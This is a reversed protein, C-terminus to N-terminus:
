LLEIVTLEFTITFMYFGFCILLCVVILFLVGYGIWKSKEIFNIELGIAVLIAYILTIETFLLMVKVVVTSYAHISMGM